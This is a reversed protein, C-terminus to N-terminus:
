VLTQALSLYNETISKTMSVFQEMQQDFDRKADGTTDKNHAIVDALAKLADANKRYKAADMDFDAKIIDGMGNVVQGVASAIQTLAFAASAQQQANFMGNDHYDKVLKQKAHKLEKIQDELDKIRNSPDEPSVDDIKKSNVSTTPSSITKLNDLELEKQKIQIKLDVYKGAFELDKKESPRYPLWNASLDKAFDKILKETPKAINDRYFEVADKGNELKLDKLNHNLYNEAEEIQSQTASPDKKVKDLNDLANTVDTKQAKEAADILKHRAEAIDNIQKEFKKEVKEIDKTTPQLAIKLAPLSLGLQILGGALQFAGQILSGQAAAMDAKYQQNAADFRASFERVVYQLGIGERLRSSEGMARLIIAILSLVSVTDSLQNLNPIRNAGVQDVPPFRITDAPDFLRPATFTNNQIILDSM